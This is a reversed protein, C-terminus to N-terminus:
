SAVQVDLTLRTEAKLSNTILCSAEAKELLQRAVDPKMDAKIWLRAAVQFETFQTVKELRALVGTVDCEMATWQLNSARAISKFTLIFCDAVAAVLLSEPSWKDGPGDFEIPPASQLTPFGGASLHVDGDNSSHGQVRYHHPLKQM